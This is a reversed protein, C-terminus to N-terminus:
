PSRVIIFECKFIDTHDAGFFQISVGKFVKVLIVRLYSFFPMLNRTKLTRLRM